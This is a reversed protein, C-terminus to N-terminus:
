RWKLKGMLSRLRTNRLLEQRTQNTILDFFFSLGNAVVFWQITSADLSSFFFFVISWRPFIIVQWYM